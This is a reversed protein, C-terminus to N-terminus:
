CCHFSLVFNFHGLQIKVQAGEDNAKLKLRMPIAKRVSRGGQGRRFVDRLAPDSGYAALSLVNFRLVIVKQLLCHQPDQNPDTPDTHPGTM